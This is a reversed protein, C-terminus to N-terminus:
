INSAGKVKKKWYSELTDLLNVPIINRESYYGIKEDKEGHFDSGGSLVLGYKRAMRVFELTQEETHMGAYAEIGDLGKEILPALVSEFESFSTFELSAPHALISIGGAGRILNLADDPTIKEKMVDGPKGNVLFNEFVEDINRAYGKQVMVRAFHPKGVPAGSAEAYVDDLTIDIGCRNLDDIIGHARNERYSRLSVLKSKIEHNEFDIFLGVVHFTGHPYEVSFEIGPILNFNIRRAYAAAEPLGDVTDHDTIALASVGERVAYDVLRVPSYTGDSATTHTHLDIKNKLM